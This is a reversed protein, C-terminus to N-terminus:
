SRWAIRYLCGKPLKHSLSNKRITAGSSRTADCDGLLSDIRRDPHLNEGVLLTVPLLVEQHIDKM